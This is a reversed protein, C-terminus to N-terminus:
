LYMKIKKVLEDTTMNSKLLYDVAGLEKCKEVDVELSLNSLVVVPFTYGKENIHNLVDFGDIEPMLLDLILLDPQKKDIAEVAEKGSYVFDVDFKEDKLQIGYM